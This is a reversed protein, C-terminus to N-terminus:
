DRAAFAQPPYHLRLVELTNPLALYKLLRFEVIYDGFDRSAGTLGNLGILAVEPSTLQSRVMNGFRARETDDLGPEESIRRLITYVIRFYPGLGAESRMHVNDTYLEALAGSSLDREEDAGLKNEMDDAFRKIAAMGELDIVRIAQLEKAYRRDTVDNRLDRMLALLQFFHEEFRQKNRDAKAAELEGQQRRLETSQQRLTVLVAIFGAAAFLANLAGFSDGWQGVTEPRWILGLWRSIPRQFAWLLWLGPVLIAAAWLTKKSM